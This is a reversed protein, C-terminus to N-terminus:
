LFRVRARRKAFYTQSLSDAKDPSRHLIKKIKKKDVIQIASDSSRMDWKTAMLEQALESDPPLALKGGLAPDLADRIAWYCYARLNVFTREGTVDKLGKASYSGKFSVPAIMKKGNRIREMCRSYVGAGEGIADIICSDGSNDIPIHGLYGVISMHEKLPLAEVKTVIDGYRYSLATSDNGIGAVDVGLRLPEGSEPEHNKLWRENSAKIWSMPILTDSSIKPYEGLVKIRFLDSPRYWQGEFCFDNEELNADKPKINKTWGPKKITDVVWEYDVQGPIIKKKAVVNPADLCNLAYCKYSPDVNSRYAEGDLRNPNSSMFMKYNGTMLGHIADFTEDSIGSAETVSILGNTNHFGTWAEVAKDAAKFGELFWKEKESIMIKTASLSGGLPRKTNHWIKKIEGMMISIVQRETPATCIVTSPPFLCLQCVCAVASLYDKGRAHGSRVHVKRNNQVSYLIEKQKYDLTKINLVDETFGVWNHQYKKIFDWNENKDTRYMELTSVGVNDYM